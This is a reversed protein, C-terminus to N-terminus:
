GFLNAIDDLNVDKKENNTDEDDSKSEEYDQIEDLDGANPDSEDEKEKGPTGIDQNENAQAAEKSQPARDVLEKKEKIGFILNIRSKIKKHSLKLDEQPVHKKPIKFLGDNEVRPIIHIMFHPAKQGAAAGNAIFTTTGQMSLGRLLILSLKQAINFLHSIVEEPVLPMINYHERPLLIVHGEAAPNIDLIAVCIDDEYVNKSSIEGQIIKCFICNQKQMSDVEKSKPNSSM